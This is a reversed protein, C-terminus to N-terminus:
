DEGGEQRPKALLTEAIRPWLEKLDGITGPSSDTILDCTAHLLDDRMQVPTEPNELIALLNTGFQQINNARNNDPAKAKPTARMELLNKVAKLTPMDANYVQKFITARTESLKMMEAIEEETATSYDEQSDTNLYRAHAEHLIETPNNAGAILFRGMYLKLALRYAESKQFLL